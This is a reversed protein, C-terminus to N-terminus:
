ENDISLILAEAQSNRPKIDCKFPIPHCIHQGDLCGTMSQDFSTPSGETPKINFLALFMATAIWLSADALVMGPCIRRGYGFMMERPHPPPDDVLWREPVLEFPDPYVEPDHLLTWVNPMIIAGKPILYGDLVDDKLAVRAGAGPTLTHLRTAEKLFAEVYPLNDRDSFDPLREPGVVRDLEEQAKKQAEPNLMLLLFLGHTQGVTTEAGGAYITAASTKLAYEKGDNYDDASLLDSTFSQSATGAKLRTKVMNFPVEVMNGLTKRYLKANRQFKAGPFWAPVYKLWPIFEVLFAGFQTVITFQDMAEDVLEILDDHDDNSSYGYSIQLALSGGWYRVHDELKGSPRLMNRMFRRTEFIEIGHFKEMAKKTGFLKSFNRRHEKWLSDVSMLVTIQDWGVLEGAMVFRPRESYIMQRKEMIESIAEPSSLIILTSGLVNVTIVPGYQQSWEHYKLWHFNKPMDLLSGVIPWGKPGPPLLSARRSIAYGYYAVYITCFLLLVAEITGVSDLKLM